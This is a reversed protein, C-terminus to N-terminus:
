TSSYIFPNYTSPLPGVDRNLNNRESRIHWAELTCRQTYHPHSDVVQAEGWNIVHMEEMAHEAVASHAPNGSTLARKHEKLRQDLTRGTQGIYARGCTGCPIRYVVGAKKEPPTHDKLRVLSQKLTRHPRFCVRVNLPVLIRRISEALHRVYPLTITAKPMDPSPPPTLTPPPRWHQHILTKPYGNSELAKSVHKKETDRDCQFTCIRDARTLLTRTVAAKHVLPHHSSFDLYRDTHTKKRFVTTSLSGDDHRTVLTDLFAITGQPEEEITFQISPEISNLHHHFAQIQDPPLASLTDDVYRKWFLPKHTCTSLAREEVDEMVLDAVTVSIPSGMATGYTQQYWEGRYSLYTANLCFTLLNVVEDPSLATREPLSPDTLLREKAM